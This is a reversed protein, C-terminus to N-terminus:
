AEKVLEFFKDCFQDYKQSREVSESANESAWEAARVAAVASAGAVSKLAWVVVFVATRTWYTLEFLEEAKDMKEKDLVGKDIWEQLAEEVKSIASLLYTFDKDVNKKADQVVYLLFKPEVLDLNKHHNEKMLTLFDVNFTKLKNEGIREFFSDQLHCVWRPVELIESLYDHNYFHSDEIDESGIYREYDYVTCAVSCGRFIGDEEVGGSDGRRYQDLRQHEKAWEILFDYKNM